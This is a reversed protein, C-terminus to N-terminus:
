TVYWIWRHYWHDWQQTKGGRANGLRCRYTGQGWWAWSPRFRNHDHVRCRRDTALQWLGRRGMKSITFQHGAFQKFDWLLSVASTNIDRHQLRRESQIALVTKQKFNPCLWGRGRVWVLVGQLRKTDLELLLVRLSILAWDTEWLGRSTM